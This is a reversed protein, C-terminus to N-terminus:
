AHPSSSVALSPPVSLVSSTAAPSQGVSTSPSTLMEPEEVTSGMEAATPSFSSSQPEPTAAVTSPGPVPSPNTSNQSPSVSMESAERAILASSASIQASLPTSNMSSFTAM